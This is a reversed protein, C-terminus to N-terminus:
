SRQFKPFSSNPVRDGLRVMFYPVQHLTCTRALRMVILKGATCLMTIAEFRQLEEETIPLSNGYRHLKLMASAVDALILEAETFRSSTVLLVVDQSWSAGLLDGLM